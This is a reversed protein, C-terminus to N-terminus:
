RAGKRANCSRCLVDGDQDHGGGAARPVPHDLTLEDPYVPHPPRDWGPCIPGHQALHAAITDASKRRWERPTRKGGSPRKGHISPARDM